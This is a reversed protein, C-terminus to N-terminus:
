DAWPDLNGTQIRPAPSSEPNQRPEQGEPESSTASVNAKEQQPPALSSEPAPSDVANKAPQPSGKSALTEIRSSQTTIKVPSTATHLPKKPPKEAPPGAQSNTAQRAGELEPAASSSTNHPIDEQRETPRLAILRAPPRDQFLIKSPEFDPHTILLEHREGDRPLVLSLSGRSLTTGDLTIEADRPTVTVEATYTAQQPAGFEDRILSYSMTLTIIGALLVFAITLPTRRPEPRPTQKPVGVSNFRRSSGPSSSPEASSESSVTSIPNLRDPALPPSRRSLASRTPDFSQTKADTDPPASPHPPRTRGITVEASRQSLQEERDHVPANVSAMTADNATLFAAQWTQRQRPSAFPLLAAGFQGMSEFRDDPTTSLARVLTDSLGVPISVDLDRPNQIKGEAVHRLLNVLSSKHQEFPRVGLLSEYLCLALSYQDSKWTSSAGDAQEPAIYFPTGLFRPNQTLAADVPGELKSIGFDLLYPEPTGRALDALFINAPKLDRHLVKAEHAAMLASCIPLMFDVAATLPLRGRRQLLDALTEGDLLQMALYAYGGESGANYVQVVNPHRIRAAAAGEQVFRLFLESAEDEASVVKLAVDRGLKLDFARFVTGMAGSGIREDLRYDGIMRPRNAQDFAASVISLPYIAGIPSITSVSGTAAVNPRM